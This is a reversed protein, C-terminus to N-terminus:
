EYRNGGRGLYGKKRKRARERTVSVPERDKWTSWKLIEQNTKQNAAAAKKYANCTSHCGIHRISCNMCPFVVKGGSFPGIM